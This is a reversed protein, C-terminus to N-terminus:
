DIQPFPEAILWDGSDAIQKWSLSFRKTEVVVRPMRYYELQYYVVRVLETGELKGELRRATFATVKLDDDNEFRDLFDKKLEPMFHMAAGAVNGWRVRLMFDDNLKGFNDEHSPLMQCGASFLVACVLAGAMAFLRRYRRM